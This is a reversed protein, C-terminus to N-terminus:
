SSSGRRLERIALVGTMAALALWVYSFRKAENRPGQSDLQPPGQSHRGTLSRLVDATEFDGLEYYEAAAQLIMEIRVTDHILGSRRSASQGSHQFWAILGILEKPMIFKAEALAELHNLCAVAVAFRCRQLATRGIRFPVEVNDFIVDLTHLAASDAGARLAHEGLWCAVDITAQADSEHPLQRDHLRRWVARLTELSAMFNAEDGERAPGSYLSKFGYIVDGIETGGYRTTRQVSECIESLAVIVKQKEHGPGAHAGLSILDRLDDDAFDGRKKYRRIIQRSLTSVLRTRIDHKMMRWWLAAFAVVLTAVMVKAADEIAAHAVPLALQSIYAYPLDTALIHPHLSQGGTKSPKVADATGRRTSPQEAGSVILLCFIVGVTVVMLITVLGYPLRKHLMHRIQDEASTEVILAPIGLAFLMLAILIHIYLLAEHYPM